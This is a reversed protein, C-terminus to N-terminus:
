TILKYAIGERAVRNIFAISGECVKDDKIKKMSQIAMYCLIYKM